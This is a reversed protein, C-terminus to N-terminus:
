QRQASELNSRKRCSLRKGVHLVPTLPVPVPISHFNISLFNNTRLRFIELTNRQHDIENAM